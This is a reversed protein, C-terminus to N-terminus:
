EGYPFLSRGSPHKTIEEITMRDKERMWMEIWKRDRGVCRGGSPLSYKIWEAIAGCRRHYIIVTDWNWSTTSDTASIKTIIWNPHAKREREGNEGEEGEEEERGESLWVLLNVWNSVLQSFSCHLSIILRDRSVFLWYCEAKENQFRKPLSLMLNKGSETQERERERTISLSSPSFSWGLSWEFIGMRYLDDMPGLLFLSPQHLLCTFLHLMCRFMRRHHLSIRRGRRYRRRM